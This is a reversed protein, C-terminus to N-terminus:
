ASLSLLFILLPSLSIGGIGLSLSPIHPRPSLSIGGILSLSLHRRHSLSLHRRHSLSLHRGHRSETSRPPHTPHACSAGAQVQAPDFCGAAPQSEACASRDFLHLQAARRNSSPKPSIRSRPLIIASQTILMGILDPPTPYKARWNPFVDESSWEGNIQKYGLCKWAILNVENDPIDGKVIRLLNENSLEETLEDEEPDFSDLVYSPGAMSLPFGNTVLRRGNVSPSELRFDVRQKSLPLGSWIRSSYKIQFPTALFSYSTAILALFCCLFYFRRLM